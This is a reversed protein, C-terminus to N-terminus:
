WINREQHYCFKNGYVYMYVIFIYHVFDEDQNMLM